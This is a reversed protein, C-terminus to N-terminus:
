SAREAIRELAQDLAERTLAAVLEKRFAVPIRENDEIEVTDAVVAGVRAPWDKSLPKSLSKALDGAVLQEARVPVPGIGGIALRL